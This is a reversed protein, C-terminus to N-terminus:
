KAKELETLILDLDQPMIPGVHQYRIIGRGDVVFSEPVGSSGLAMQVNSQADAGIRQYPDGNEKLFEAIDEPRDRVAIGDIAVGKAKLERLVPAEAICPVCWSAFFNVIRPKGTALDTSGFTARAPLAEPLAFSPVPKGELKSRITTDAPVTLRWAVFALFVVLLAIPVFRVPRSM